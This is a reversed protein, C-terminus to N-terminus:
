ERCDPMSFDDYERIEGSVELERRVLSSASSSRLPLIRLLSIELVVIDFLSTMMCRKRKRGQKLKKRAATMM